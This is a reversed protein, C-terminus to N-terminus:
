PKDTPLLLIDCNVKVKDLGWSRSDLNTCFVEWNEKEAKLFIDTNNKLTTCRLLPNNTGLYVEEIKVKYKFLLTQNNTGIFDHKYYKDKQYENQYDDDQSVAKVVRVEDEYVWNSHKTLLMKKIIRLARNTNEDSLKGSRNFRRLGVSGAYIDISFKFSLDNKFKKNTYFTDGEYAPVINYDSSNLFKNSVNYGIVFGKHSQGYHAWMLTNLPDKTLSLIAVSDKIQEFIYILKEKESDDGELNSLSSLEFPDNFYKPRTFGLQNNLLAKVGADYSYYKYLIM